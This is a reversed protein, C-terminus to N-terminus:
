QNVWAKGNWWYGAYLLFGSTYSAEVSNYQNQFNTSVTATSVTAPFTLQAAVEVTTGAAIAANEAATANAWSSVCPSTVPPNGAAIVCPTPTTTTYWSLYNITISGNNAPGGSVYIVQKAPTVTGGTASGACVGGVPLNATFSGSAGTLATGNYNYAAVSSGQVSFGQYQAIGCATCSVTIVNSVCTIGTISVGAASLPLLSLLFYAATKM